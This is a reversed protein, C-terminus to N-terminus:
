NMTIEAWSGSWNNAYIYFQCYWFVGLHALRRFCKTSTRFLLIVDYIVFYWFFLTIFRSFVLTVQVTQLLEFYWFLTLPGSIDFCGYSLDDSYNVSTSFYSFLRTRGSIDFGGSPCTLCFLGFTPDLIFACLCTFHIYILLEVYVAEVLPSIHISIPSDADNFPLSLFLLTSTKRKM